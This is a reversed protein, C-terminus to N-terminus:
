LPHAIPREEGAEIRRQRREAERRIAPLLLWRIMVVGGGFRRWYARFKRRAGDDTAVARTRTRLRTLRLRLPEVELTWVIKVHDPESWAAFEPAPIPQFEVDALWPQCAAGVVLERGPREALIRWGLALTEALFETGSRPPADHSHLIRSRLWFIGRVAPISQVDFHRATDLVVHVPARVLVEHCEDVDGRPLFRDILLGQSTEPAADGIETTAM